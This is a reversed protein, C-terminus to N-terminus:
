CCVNIYTPLYTRIDRICHGLAPDIGILNRKTKSKDLSKVREYLKLLYVVSAQQVSSVLFAAASCQVLNILSRVNPTILFLGISLLARSTPLIFLYNGKSFSMFCFKMKRIEAYFVTM